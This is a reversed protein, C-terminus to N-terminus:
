GRRGRRLLSVALVAASVWAGGASGAQGFSCAKPGSTGEEPTVNAYLTSVAGVDTHALVRKHMECQGISLFMTAQREVMDEGLGFFHGAEHTVVNQADYRSNCDDAVLNRQAPGAPDELKSKLVGMPYRSNLIVDAELIEGTKDNAYTVTIAVDKEHGPARIEAYSVTSKGDQVPQASTSGGSDFALSPLREDSAVWSGFAQMVAEDAAPSLKKLSPDLYITITAKRWHQDIGTSSKRFGPSGSRVEAKVNPRKVASASVVGVVASLAVFFWLRRRAPRPPEPAPGRSGTGEPAVTAAATPISLMSPQYRLEPERRSRPHISAPVLIKLPRRRGVKLWM